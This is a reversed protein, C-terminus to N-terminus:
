VINVRRGELWREVEEETLFRTVFDLSTKIMTRDSVLPIQLEVDRYKFCHKAEKIGKYEAIGFQTLYKQDVTYM